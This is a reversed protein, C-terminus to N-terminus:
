YPRTPESIHILSLNSGTNLHLCHLFIKNDGLWEMYIEEPFFDWLFADDRNEIEIKGIQELKQEDTTLFWEWYSGTDDRFHSVIITQGLEEIYMVNFDSETLLPTGDERNM